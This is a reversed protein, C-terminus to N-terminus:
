KLMAYSRGCPNMIAQPQPNTVAWEYWVKQPNELRWMSVDIKEDKKVFMPNKIPIYVPFWSFMGDSFTPPHISIVVDKYLDCHFYGAFGHIVCDQEVDFSLDVHRENSTLEWNPHTYSFVKQPKSPYYAAHFAVVYATELHSIDGQAKVDRWLKVTSVPELSSWYHTPISVGDKHLFRQAGDLCEPSLENDSFSGLLESVMIDAREETQWFRMDSSVIEVNDWGERAKRSRLTIIANPNKEVAWM